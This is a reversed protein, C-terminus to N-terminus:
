EPPADAATLAQSAEAARSTLSAPPPGAGSGTGVLAFWAWFDPDLLANSQITDKARVVGEAHGTYPDPLTPIVLPAPTHPIGPSGAAIGNNVEEPGAKAGVPATTFGRGVHVAGRLHIASSPAARIEVGAGAHVVVDGASGTEIALMRGAGTRVFTFAPAASKEDRTAAIVTGTAVGAVSAPAHEQMDHLAGVIVAHSDTGNARVVVVQQGVVLELHMVGDALRATGQQGPDGTRYTVHVLVQGGETWAWPTGDEGHGVTALAVHTEGSQSYRAGGGTGRSAGRGLHERISM